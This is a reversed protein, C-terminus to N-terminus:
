TVQPDLTDPQAAMAMTLTQASALGLVASLAVAVLIKLKMTGGTNGVLIGGHRRVSDATPVSWAQRTPLPRVRRGRTQSADHYGVAPRTLVTRGVVIVHRHLVHFHERAEYSHRLAGVM